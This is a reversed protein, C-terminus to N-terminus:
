DNLAMEEDNAVVVVQEHLFDEIVAEEGEVGAHLLLAAIMLSTTGM